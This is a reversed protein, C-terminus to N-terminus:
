AKAYANSYTIMARDLVKSKWLFKQQMRALVGTVLFQDLRQHLPFYPAPQKFVSVLVLADLFENFHMTTVDDDEDSPGQVQFPGFIVATVNEPCNSCLCSVQATELFWCVMMKGRPSTHIWGRM